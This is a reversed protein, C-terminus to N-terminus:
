VTHLRPQQAPVVQAGPVVGVAHPSVPPAQLSQAVFLMPCTQSALAFPPNQPQLEALSQGSLLAHLEVTFSQAVLQSGSLGLQLALQQEGSVLV